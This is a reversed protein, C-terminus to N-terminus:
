PEEGDAKRCADEMYEDHRESLDGAGSSFRGAAAMARRRRDAEDALDPFPQGEGYARAEEQVSLGAGDRGTGGRRSVEARGPSTPGGGAKWARIAERVFQSRTMAAKGRLVEVDKFEAGSMSVAFKVSKKM